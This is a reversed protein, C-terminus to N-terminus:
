EINKNSIKIKNHIPEYCEKPNFRETCHIAPLSVNEANLLNKYQPDDQFDYITFKIKEPISKSWYYLKRIDSYIIDLADYIDDGNTPRDNARDEIHRIRNKNHRIIIRYPEDNEIHKKTSKILEEKSKINEMRHTNTGIYVNNENYFKVNLDLEVNWCEFPFNELPITKISPNFVIYPHAFSMKPVVSIHVTRNDDHDPKASFKSSSVHGQCCFLTNWKKKNLEMIVPAIYDDCEFAYPFDDEEDTEFFDSVLFSDFTKPDIKVM